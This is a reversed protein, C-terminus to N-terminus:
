IGSLLEPNDFKNGIIKLMMRPYVWEFIRVGEKALLDKRGNFFVIRWELFHESYIVVGINEYKDQVIDGEFIRLDIGKADTYWVIEKVTMNERRSVGTRIALDTIVTSDKGGSVMVTYEGYISEAIPAMSKIRDMAIVAKDYTTGDLQIERLM